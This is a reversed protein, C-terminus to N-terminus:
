ATLANMKSSGVTSADYGEYWGDEFLAKTEDSTVLTDLTQTSTLTSGLGSAYYCIKRQSFATTICDTFANAKIVNIHYLNICTSASTIYYFSGEAVTVKIISKGDESHSGLYLKFNSNGNFSAVCSAVITSNYTTIDGETTKSNYQNLLYAYTISNYDTDYGSRVDFYFQGETFESINDSTLSEEGDAIEFHTLTEIKFAYAGVSTLNAIPLKISTLSTDAFAYIGITKLNSSNIDISILGSAGYFAYDGISTITSPLIVYTISTEDKFANNAISTVSYTKGDTTVESPVIVLYSNTDLELATSSDFGSVSATNDEDYTYTVGSVNKYDFNIALYVNTTISSTLDYDKGFQTISLINIKNNSYNASLKEDSIAEIIKDITISSGKTVDITKDYTTGLIDDVVKVTVIPADNESVFVVKETFGAAEDNWATYQETMYSYGTSDGCLALDNIDNPMSVSNFVFYEIGDLDNFISYGNSAMNGLITDNVVNYLSCNNNYSTLLYVYSPYNSLNENYGIYSFSSPLVITTVDFNLFAGVQIGVIGDPVTLVGNEINNYSILLKGRSDDKYILKGDKHFPSGSEFELNSPVVSMNIVSAPITITFDYESGTNMYFSDMSFGNANTSNNYENFFCNIIVELGSPLNVEKLNPLNNFSNELVKLTSPLKVEEVSSVGSSLTLARITEIGEQFIITKLNSSSVGGSNDQPYFADVDYTQLVEETGASEDAAQTIVTAKSGISIVEVDSGKVKDYDKGKLTGYSGIVGTVYLKNSTEDLTYTLFPSRWAVTITTNQNIAEGFAFENGDEDFYYIDYESMYDKVINAKEVTSEEGDVTTTDTKPDALVTGPKLNLTYVDEYGNNFVVKAVSQAYISTASSTNEWKVTCEENTYWGDFTLGEGPNYTGNVVDITKQKGVSEGNIYVSVEDAVFYAYLTLNTSINENTFVTTFESDIYWNRFTYYEKTPEKPLEIKGDVVEVAQGYNADDVVFTVTYTENSSNNDCGVLFLVCAIIGAIILPINKLKRKM